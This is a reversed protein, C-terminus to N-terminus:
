PTAEPIRVAGGGLKLIRPPAEVTPAAGDGDYSVAADYGIPEDYGAM